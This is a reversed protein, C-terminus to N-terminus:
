DNQRITLNTAKVNKKEEIGNEGTPKYINLIVCIM